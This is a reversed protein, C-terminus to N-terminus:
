ELTLDGYLFLENHNKELSICLRSFSADAYKEAEELSNAVITIHAWRGFDKGLKKCYIIAKFAYIM